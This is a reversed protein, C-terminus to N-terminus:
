LGKAFCTRKGERLLVNVPDHKYLPDACSVLSLKYPVIHNEGYVCHECIWAVDTSKKMADTM